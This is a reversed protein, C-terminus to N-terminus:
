LPQSGSGHVLEQHIQRVASRWWAQLATATSRLSLRWQCLAIRIAGWRFSGVFRRPVLKGASKGPLRSHLTGWQSRYGSRMCAGEPGYKETCSGTIILLEMGEVM